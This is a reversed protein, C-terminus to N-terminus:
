RQIQWKSGDWVGVVGNVVQYKRGDTGQYYTKGAAQYSSAVSVKSRGLVDVLAKPYQPAAPAPATKSGRESEALTPSRAPAAPPYLIDVLTPLYNNIAADRLSEAEKQLASPPMDKNAAAFASFMANAEALRNDLNKDTGKPIFIKDWAKINPNTRSDLIEMIQKHDQMSLEKGLLSNAISRISSLNARPDVADRALEYFKSGGSPVKGEGSAAREIRSMWKDRLDSVKEGSAELWKSTTVLNRAKMLNGDEIEKEISLAIKENGDDAQKKADATWAKYYTNGKSRISEVQSENLGKTNLPDSLFKDLAEFNPIGGTGKMAAFAGHTVEDFRMEAQWGLLKKEYANRDVLNSSLSPTWTRKIQEMGQETTLQGAAVSNLISDTDKDATATVDNGWAKIRRVNVERDIDDGAQMWWEDLKNKAVPNTILSSVQQSIKQKFKDAKENYKSYDPDLNIEELFQNTAQRYLQAGHNYQTETEADYIKGGITEILRTVAEGAGFVAGPSPNFDAM